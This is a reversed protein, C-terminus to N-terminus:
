IEFTQVEMQFGNFGDGGLRAAIRERIPRFILLFGILDTILGPIVLIIGGIVLLGIELANRSMEGATVSNQLKMLVYFGERRIIEMGVLGTLLIIGITQWFGITGALQVLIYLDVFPLILVAPIMLGKLSRM